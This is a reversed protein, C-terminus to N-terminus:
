VRLITPLTLHTYSVPADEVGDAWDLVDHLPLATVEALNRTGSATTIEPARAADSLRTGGCDPCVGTSLFREVKTLRKGSEDAGARELERLVTLRANRFTFDLDHVGKVSTVTIHKKEEPGDFVIEKEDDTLQSWPVDTRVGFERAIDPQVNFGFMNWPVVAGDDLSKAPDPVLTADDVTRM